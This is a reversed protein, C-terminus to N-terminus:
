STSSRGSRRRTNTPCPPQDKILYPLTYPHQLLSPMGLAKSDTVRWGYRSLARRVDPLNLYGGLVAPPIRTLHALYTFSLRTRGRVRLAATIDRVRMTKTLNM